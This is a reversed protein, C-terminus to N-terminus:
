DRGTTVEEHEHEHEDEDEEDKVELDKAFFLIM